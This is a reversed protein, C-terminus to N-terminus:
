PRAIMVRRTAITNGNNDIISYLYTGKNLSSVDVQITDSGTLTQQIAMLERGIINYVKIQYKGADFNELKLNLTNVAPNPFAQISQTAGAFGFVNTTAASKYYLETIRDPENTPDGVQCAVIPEKANNNFYNYFLTTDLGTFPIAPAGPITSPDTWGFQIPGLAGTMEVITNSYTLEKQRLVDFSGTEPVIMTGWADVEVYTIADFTVRISDVTFGTGALLSDVINALVPFDAVLGVSVFSSSDVYNDQYNLPTRLITQPNDFGVSTSSGLLGFLDGSFGIVQMENGAVKVYSDGGLTEDPLIIDADPFSAFASGMSAAAVTHADLVGGVFASYDWTQGAGAPTIFLQGGGYSNARRTKLVDGANPFISNTVTIQAQISMAVLGMFTLSLLVKKM